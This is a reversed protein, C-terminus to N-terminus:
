QPIYSTILKAGGLNGAKILRNIIDYTKQPDIQYLTHIFNQNFNNADPAVKASVPQRVPTGTGKKPPLGTVDM